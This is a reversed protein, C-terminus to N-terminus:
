LTVLPILSSDEVAICALLLESEPTVKIAIVCIGYLRHIM